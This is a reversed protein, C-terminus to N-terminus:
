GPLEFKLVGLQFACIAKYRSHSAIYTNCEVNSICQSVDRGGGGGGRKGEYLNTVEIM